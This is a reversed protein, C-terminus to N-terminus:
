FYGWRCRVNYIAFYLLSLTVVITSGELELSIAIAIKGFNEPKKEM